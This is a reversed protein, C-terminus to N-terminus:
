EEQLRAVLARCEDESLAADTKPYVVQEEKANHGPLVTLLSALGARFTRSDRQDIGDDLAGLAARIYAHEQRMVVLPGTLGTRQEFRPFLVEEEVRIHRLLGDHFDHFYRRAALWDRREVASRVAELLADLRDHDWSLYETVSRFAPLTGTLM